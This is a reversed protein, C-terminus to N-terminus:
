NNVKRKYFKELIDNLENFAYDREGSKLYKLFDARELLMQSIYGIVEIQLASSDEPAIMIIGLKINEVKNEGNTCELCESLKVAGFYLNQVVDTRCHLLIMEHGTVVTNGKEERDKLAIRLTEEVEPNKEIIKSAESILEDVNKINSVEKLFFNDLLQMIAGSYVNLSILKDKFRINKAKKYSHTINKNKLDNIQTVIKDKDEQFLLPNVKVVPKLCKDINVTSIIFDIENESLFSEEIYIASIIDVIHINDYESEIRTALLRSTGMGTACAIAVKYIPKIFTQSNEIAAGLHMAIFAIEAEPMKIGIHNEVIEACKTSIRMLDTYNAKIEELLPNRIDLNMKLRTIATGLHNVLGNLLNENNGLFKGTEIEAVKIIEKSLKILEFSGIIKNGAKYRDKYHKSGKIHMTIYGIEDEPIEIKFYKSINVSLTSAILYEQCKKLEELFEQNITIKDGKKVREIALAIHVILGVFASDTLKYNREKELTEVLLEIKKITENDILNLLRNRSSVEIGQDAVISDDLNQRILGLLQSENTNEYILSVMAKRIHDEEGVLYVGLGQKRILNLKHRKFWSDTKELDNSITAETVKLTKTFNYLKVPEQNQLLESIIINKREKPSYIKDDKEGNLLNIITQKEKLTGIVKIGVGTKKDLSVKNQKLFKEVEPIERIVTRGSVGLNKAIKAITIYDNEICIYQLINKLRLNIRYDKM